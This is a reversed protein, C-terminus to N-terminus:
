ADQSNTAQARVTAEHQPCYFKVAGVIVAAVQNASLGAEVGGRIIQALPTDATLASCVSKATSVAVATPVASFGSDQGVIYAMFDSDTTDVTPVPEPAPAASTPAPQTVTVTPAPTQITCGTVMGIAIALTFLFLMARYM